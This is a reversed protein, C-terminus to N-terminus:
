DWEYHDLFDQKTKIIGDRIFREAQARDAPPLAEWSGTNPSSGKTESGAPAEVSATTPGHKAFDEPFTEKVRRELENFYAQDHYGESEVQTAIGDAYATLKQDTQYWSNSTIFNKARRDHAARNPDETPAATEELRDIETGARTFATGDGDTVAQAQASKLESIRSESEQKQKALTDQHYQGFERNSTELEAIRSELREAKQKQIGAIKEGRENFERADIFKAPKRDDPGKWDEESVWGDQKARDTEEQTIESM